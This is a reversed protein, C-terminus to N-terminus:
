GLDKGITLWSKPRNVYVMTSWPLGHNVFSGNLLVHDVLISWPQIVMSYWSLEHYEMNMQDDNEGPGNTGM